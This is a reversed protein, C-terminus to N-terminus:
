ALIHYLELGIVTFSAPMIVRGRYKLSHGFWFGLAVYGAFVGVAIGLTVGAGYGATAPVIQSTTLNARELAAAFATTQVASFCFLLLLRWFQLSRMVINDLALIAVVASLLWLAVTEEPRWAFFSLAVVASAHGFGLAAIQAIMASAWGRKLFVAAALLIFELGRPWVQAFGERLNQVVIEEDSQVAGGVLPIPPPFQGQAFYGGFPKAVDHQRLVVAGFSQPWYFTVAEADPAIDASLSFRLEVARGNDTKQFESVSFNALGVGFSVMGDTVRAIHAPDASWLEEGWHTDGAAKLTVAVFLTQGDRRFDILTTSIEQAVANPRWLLM